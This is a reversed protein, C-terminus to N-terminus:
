ALALGQENRKKWFFMGQLYLQYAETNDTYRKRLTSKRRQEIAFAISRCNKHYTKRIDFIDDLTGRFSQAWLHVDSM